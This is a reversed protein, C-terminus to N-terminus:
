APPGSRSPRRTHLANVTSDVTRDPRMVVMQNDQTDAVIVRGTADVAVGEPENLTSTWDPTPSGNWSKVFGFGAAPTYTFEQIRNNGRDAVYVHGDPGVAVGSPWKFNTSGTGRAGFVTTPLPGKNDAPFVANAVDYAKIRHNQTDM